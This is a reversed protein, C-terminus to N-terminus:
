QKHNKSIQTQGKTQEEEEESWSSSFGKQGLLPPNSLSLSAPLHPARTCASVKKVVVTKRTFARGRLKDSGHSVCTSVFLLLGSVVSPCGLGLSRYGSGRNQLACRRRLAGLAFAEKEGLM